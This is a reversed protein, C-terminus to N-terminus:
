YASAKDHRVHKASFEYNASFFSREVKATKKRRLSSIAATHAKVHLGMSRLTTTTTKNIKDVIHHVAADLKQRSPRHKPNTCDWVDTNEVIATYYDCIPPPLCTYTSDNPSSCSSSLTCPLFALLSCSASRYVTNYGSPPYDKAQWRFTYCASLSDSGIVQIIKVGSLLCFLKSLTNIHTNM